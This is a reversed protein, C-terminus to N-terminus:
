LLDTQKHTTNTPLCGEILKSLKQNFGQTQVSYYVFYFHFLGPTAPATRFVGKYNCNEM